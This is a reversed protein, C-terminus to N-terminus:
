KGSLTSFLKSKKDSVKIVASGFSSGSAPIIKELAVNLSSLGHVKRMFNTSDNQSKFKYEITVDNGSGTVKVINISPSKQTRLKDLWSSKNNKVSIVNENDGAKCPRDSYALKGSDNTCKYIEANLESVTFLVLLFVTFRMIM